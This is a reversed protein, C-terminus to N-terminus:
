CRKIFLETARDDLVNVQIIEHGEEQMSKRVSELPEGNDLQARLIQGPKLTDILLKTRVFNIPCPVSSLDIFADEVSM